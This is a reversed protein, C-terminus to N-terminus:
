PAIGQSSEGLAVRLKKKARQILSSVTGIPRETLESVERVTYGEVAQLFLAEREDTRLAGLAEDLALSDVAQPDFFPVFSSDAYDEFSEESAEPFPEHPFRRSRRRSDIFRNRITAFLYGIHPESRGSRRTALWAEQILDEAEPVSRALSLAYRYGRHLLEELNEQTM